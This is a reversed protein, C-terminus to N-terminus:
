AGMRREAACMAEHAADDQEQQRVMCHPCGGDARVRRAFEYFQAGELLDWYDDMDLDRNHQACFGRSDLEQQDHEAFDWVQVTTRGDCTNCTVDYRGAQIDAFHDLLGPDAEVDSQTYVHGRMSPTLTKGAGECDPCVVWKKKFSM